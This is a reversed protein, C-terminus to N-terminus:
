LTLRQYDLAIKNCTVSGAHRFCTLGANSCASSMFAFISMIPCNTVSKTVLKLGTKTVLIKAGEAQADVVEDMEIAFCSLFVTGDGCESQCFLTAIVTVVSEASGELSDGTEGDGVPHLAFTHRLNYM